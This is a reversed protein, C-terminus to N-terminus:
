VRNLKAVLKRVMGRPSVKVLQVGLNNKFGPIVLAKGAMMGDFGAKVVSESSAVGTKFLLAKDVHAVAAFETATAGPALVTCTVGTGTLEEHLGESFSNVFAKSAYYTTMFPGPQFGATSGVNLIRGSKRELMAPLYLHCLEVLTRINLDLMELQRSLGLKVFEGTDGFGANNVLFDIKLGLAETREFLKKGAGPTSLDLVIIEARSNPFVKKLSQAVTELNERRRAVLVVHHGNQVFRKAFDVGLGASAGTILATGM